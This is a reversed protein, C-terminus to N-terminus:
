KLVLILGATIVLWIAEVRIGSPAERQIGKHFKFFSWLPGRHPIHWAIPWLLDPLIAAFACVVIVLALAPHILAAALCVALSLGTDVAIKPWFHKSGREFREDEGHHPVMDLAFHSALALPVALVPERVTIAIVAATTTHNVGLMIVNYIQTSYNCAFITPKLLTKVLSFSM